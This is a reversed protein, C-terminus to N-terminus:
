ECWDLDYSVRGEHYGFDTERFDFDWVHKLTHSPVRNYAERVDGAIIQILIATLEWLPMANLVEREWAGFESLYSVLSPTTLTGGFPKEHALRVANRWTITGANDGLEAISASLLRPPITDFLNTVDLTIM